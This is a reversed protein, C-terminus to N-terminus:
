FQKEQLFRNIETQSVYLKRRVTAVQLGESRWENFTSTKINLYQMAEQMTLWEKNYDDAIHEMKHIMANLRSLLRDMENKEHVNEMRKGLEQWLMEDTVNNIEMM